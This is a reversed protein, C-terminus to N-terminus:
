EGFYEKVYQDRSAVLGQKVFKDCMTRADPPLDNYGRKGSSRERTEGSGAVAAPRNREQNGFAAPFDEAVRRKVEDLFPRGVLGPAEQRLLEGYGNAVVRLKANEAFWKNENVWGAFVPDVQPPPAKPALKGPDLERLQEMKEELEVVKDGDGERIADKKAALLEAKAREYAKKETERHFAAFESLTQKLEAIDQDRRSVENRLKDLDKRLFGNIRKGEALFDEASRFKDEPGDFEELPRWGLLRAEAEAPSPEGSPLAEGGDVVENEQM